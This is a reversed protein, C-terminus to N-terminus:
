NYLFHHLPVKVRENSNTCEIEFQKVHDTHSRDKSINQPDNESSIMSDDVKVENIIKSSNIRVINYVISWIYITGIQFSFVVFILEVFNFIM